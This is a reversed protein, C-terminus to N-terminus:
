HISISYLLILIYKKVNVYNNLKIEIYHCKFLITSSPTVLHHLIKIVVAIVINSNM